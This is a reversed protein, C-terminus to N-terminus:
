NVYFSPNDKILGSNEMNEDNPISDTSNSIEWESTDDYGIGFGKLITQLDETEKYTNNYENLSKNERNVYIRTGNNKTIEGTKGFKAIADDVDSYKKNIDSFDITVAGSQMASNIYIKSNNEPTITLSNYEINLGNSNGGTNEDKTVGIFDIDFAPIKGAFITGPSYLIKYDGNENISKTSVFFHQLTDIVADPIFCLFEAIYNFLKGGGKTDTKAYSYNPMVFNCLMIVAIISIILKNLMKSHLKKM